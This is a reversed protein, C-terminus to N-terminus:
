RTRGVARRVWQAGTAAVAAPIFLFGAASGVALRRTFALRRSFDMPEDLKESKPPLALPSEGPTPKRGVLAIGYREETVWHPAIYTARIDVFGAADFWERYEAESPFLMWTDAVLRALRKNPRLPGIMLAEGGAKLVRYAECIGRQPEPWYEISGASVYRDFTDTPYPIDEADGLQFTCGILDPKKQAKAVQHPSQDVCHIFEPRVRRAIGQTTFGTGSGVDITALTPDSWDALSLAKERMPENWFFPNVYDDYFISLFRYFWFAEKKHQVNRM